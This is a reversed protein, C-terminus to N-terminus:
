PILPVDTRYLLREAIAANERTCCEFATRQICSGHIRSCRGGLADRRSRCTRQAHQRSHAKLTRCEQGHKM